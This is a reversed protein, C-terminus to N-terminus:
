RGMRAFLRLAHAPDSAAVPMVPDYAARILDAIEARLVAAGSEPDRTLPGAGAFTGEGWTLIAQAAQGLAVMDAPADELGRAMRVFLFAAKIAGRRDFRFVRYQVADAAQLRPVLSALEPILRDLDPVGSLEDWDRLFFIMLNAGLEADIEEIEQGTLAAVSHVAERVVALTEDEVGFVVPALPRGWRAFAYAGDQMFLAQVEEPTM